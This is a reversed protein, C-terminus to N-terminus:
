QPNLECFLFNDRDIVEGRSFSVPERFLPGDFVFSHFEGNEGCPDVGEPLDNLFEDDIIRGAFSADLKRPDVCTTMARYGLDIFTRVLETTSRQWLPFLCKLSRAALQRERYEKLDQLFIDGFAITDIGNQVAEDWAQSMASEYEDNDAQPSIAVELLPIQLAAAQRHLLERRVGHMSIRDYGATITTILKVVEWEGASKLEHLMM